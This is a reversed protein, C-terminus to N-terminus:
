LWLLRSARIVLGALHLPFQTVRTIPITSTAMVLGARVLPQRGNTALGGTESEM